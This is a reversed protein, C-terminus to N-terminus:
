IELGPNIEFLTQLHYSVDDPLNFPRANLMVQSTIIRNTPILISGGDADLHGAQNIRRCSFRHWANFMGGVSFYSLHHHDPISLIM